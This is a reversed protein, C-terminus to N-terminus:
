FEGFKNKLFLSSGCCKVVGHSLIAKRDALIDAEDMSDTTIVVCQGNSRRKLLADWVQSRSVPDLKRTPEDVVVVQPDGVLALGISLKRRASENLTRVLDASQEALGLEALISQVSRAVEPPTSAAGVPGPAVHSLAANEGKITAFYALQESVTLFGSNINSQPCIGLLSGSHLAPGARPPPPLIDPPL